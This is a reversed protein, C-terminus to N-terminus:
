FFCQWITTKSRTWKEKNSQGVTKTQSLIPWRISRTMCFFLPCSLHSYLSQPPYPVWIFSQLGVHKSLSKKSHCPDRKPGSLHPTGFRWLIWGEWLPHVGWARDSDLVTIKLSVFRDDSVTVPKFDDVPRAQDWGSILLRTIMQKEHMYLNVKLFSARTIQIM